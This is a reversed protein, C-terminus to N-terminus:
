RRFCGQCSQACGHLLDLSLIFDMRDIYARDTTRSRELLNPEVAM